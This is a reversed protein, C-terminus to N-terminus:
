VQPDKEGLRGYGIGDAKAGLYSYNSQGKSNM